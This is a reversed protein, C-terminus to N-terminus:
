GSDATGPVDWRRDPVVAAPAQRRLLPQTKQLYALAVFCLSCLALAPCATCHTCHVILALTHTTNKTHTSHPIFELLWCCCGAVPYGLGPVCTRRPAPPPPPPPPYPTKTKPTPPVSARSAWSGAVAVVVSSSHCLWGGLGQCRAHAGCLVSCMGCGPSLRSDSLSDGRPPPRASRPGLARPPQGCPFGPVLCGGRYPGTPPCGRPLGM